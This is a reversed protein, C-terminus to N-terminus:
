FNFYFNFKKRVPSIDILVFADLLVSCILVILWIYLHKKTFIELEIFIIVISIFLTVADFRQFLFEALTTLFLIKNIMFINKVFTSVSISSQGGLIKDLKESLEKEKQEFKEGRSFDDIKKDLNFSNNDPSQNNQEIPFSQQFQDQNQDEQFNNNNEQAYNPDLGENNSNNNRNTDNQIEDTNYM